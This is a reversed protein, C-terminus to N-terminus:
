EIKIEAARAGGKNCKAKIKVIDGSKVDPLDIFLESSTLSSQEDFEVVKVEEGNVMVFAKSIYHKKVDKVKHEAVVKVKGTEKDYSLTVKKPPNAMSAIGFGVLLLMSLIKKM